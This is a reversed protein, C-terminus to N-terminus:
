PNPMGVNWFNKEALLAKMAHAQEKQQDNFFDESDLITEISCAVLQAGNQAKCMLNRYPRLENKRGPASKRALSFFIPRVIALIEYSLLYLNKANCLFRVVDLPEDLLFTFSEMEQDHQKELASLEAHLPYLFLKKTPPTHNM